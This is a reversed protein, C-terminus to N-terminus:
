FNITVTTIFPCSPYVPNAFTLQLVDGNFLNVNDAKIAFFPISNLTNFTPLTNVNLYTLDTIEYLTSQTINEVSVLTNETSFQTLELTENANITISGGGSINNWYVVDDGPLPLATTVKWQGFTDATIGTNYVDDNVIINATGNYTVTLLNHLLGTYSVSQPTIYTWFETSTHYDLFFGQAYPVMWGPNVVIAPTRNFNYVLSINAKYTVQYSTADVFVLLKNTNGYYVFADFAPCYYHNYSIGTGDEPVANATTLNITQTQNLTTADLVAIIRDGFITPPPSIINPTENGMIWIEDTATHYIPPYTEVNYVGPNTGNGVIKTLLPATSSGFLATSDYVRCINEVGNGDTGFVYAKGQGLTLQNPFFIKPNTISTDIAIKTSFNNYYGFYPGNYSGTLNQTNIVDLRQSNASLGIVRSNTTDYKINTLGSTLSRNTSSVGHNFLTRVSPVVSGDSQINWIRVIGNNWATGWIQAVGTENYQVSKYHQLEPSQKWYINGNDALISLGGFGYSKQGMFEAFMEGYSNPNWTAFPGSYPTSDAGVLVQEIESTSLNYVFLNSFVYSTILNPVNWNNVRNMMILRDSDLLVAGQVLEAAQSKEYVYPIAETQFTNATLNYIYLDRSDRSTFYFVSDGAVNAMSINGCINTNWLLSGDIAASSTFTSPDYIYIDKSVIPVLPDSITADQVDKSIFYYLDSITDHCIQFAGETLNSGVPDLLPVTIIMSGTSADFQAVQGLGHSYIFSDTTLDYKLGGSNYRYITYTTGYSLGYNNYGLKIDWCEGGACFTKVSLSETGSNRVLAFEGAAPSTPDTIVLNYNQWEGPTWSANTDFFVGGEFYEVLLAFTDGPALLTGDFTPDSPGPEVYLTNTDNSFTTSTPPNYTYLKVQKGAMAGTLIEVRYGNWQNNTWPTGAVTITYQTSSVVTNVERGTVSGEYGRNAGIVVDTGIVTFNGISSHDILSVNYTGPTLASFDDGIVFIYGNSQNIEIMRIPVSHANVLTDVLTLSSDYVNIDKGSAGGPAYLLGDNWSAGSNNVIAQNIGYFGDNGNFNTIDYAVPPVPLDVHAIERIGFNIPHSVEATTQNVIDTVEIKATLSFPGRAGYIFDGAGADYIFASQIGGLGNVAPPVQAIDPLNPGLISPGSINIEASIVDVGTVNIRIYNFGGITVVDADYSTNANIYTAINNCIQLVTLGTYNVNSITCINNAGPDYLFVDVNMGASLQAPDLAPDLKVPCYVNYSINPGSIVISSSNVLPIPNGVADETTYTFANISPPYVQNTGDKLSIDVMGTLPNYCLAGSILSPGALITSTNFKALTAGTTDTCNGRIDNIDVIQLEPPLTSTSPDLISSQVYFRYENGSQLLVPNSSPNITGLGYYGAASTLSSHLPNLDLTDTNNNNFTIATIPSTCKDVTQYSTRGIPAAMTLGPTGCTYEFANGLTFDLINISSKNIHTSDPYYVSYYLTPTSRSGVAPPAGQYVSIIPCAIAYYSRQDILGGTGLCSKSVAFRYVTGPNLGTIDYFSTTSPLPSPNVKIWNNINTPDAERYFVDFEDTIPTGPPVAWTIRVDM